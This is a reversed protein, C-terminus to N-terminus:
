SQLFFFTLYPVAKIATGKDINRIANTM